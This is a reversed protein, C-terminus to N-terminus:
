EQSIDGLVGESIKGRFNGKSVKGSFEELFNSVKSREIADLSTDVIILCPNMASGEREKEGELVVDGALSEEGGGGDGGGGGGLSGGWEFGVRKSM